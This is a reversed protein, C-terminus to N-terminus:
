VSLFDTLFNELMIPDLGKMHILWMVFQSLLTVLINVKTATSV